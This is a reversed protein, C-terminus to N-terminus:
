VLDKWEDINNHIEDASSEDIESNSNHTDCIDTSGSNDFITKARHYYPAPKIRGGIYQNLADKVHGSREYHPLSEYWKLIDADKEPNLRISIHERIRKSM